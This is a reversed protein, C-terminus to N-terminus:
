ADFNGGCHNCHFRKSHSRVWQTTKRGCYRCGPPEGYVEKLRATRIIEMAMEMRSYAVADLTDLRHEKIEEAHQTEFAQIASILQVEVNELDTPIHAPTGQLQNM